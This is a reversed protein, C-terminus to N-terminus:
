AVSLIHITRATHPAHQIRGAARLARLHYDVLSTTSLNLGVRIEEYTPPYGQDDIFAAIFNLMTQQKPTITTM